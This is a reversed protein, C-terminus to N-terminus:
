EDNQRWLKIFDGPTVVRLRYYHLENNSKYHKVNATILYESQSALALEIFKNDTEDFLNPRFLFSIRKELGTLALLDLIAQINEISLGTEILTKNRQLVECYELFVPVSLALQVKEDRILKLIQHSAGKNSYLAQYIVNTDVTIIM